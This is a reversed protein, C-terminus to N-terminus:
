LGRAGRRKWYVLPYTGAIPLVAQEYEAAFRPHAVLGRQSVFVPVKGDADLMGNGLLIVDPERALVISADFKTHGKMEAELHPATHAIAPDVLGLMDVIPLRSEFGVFGIAETAVVTGPAARERLAVGVARWRRELQDFSAECEDRQTQRLQITAIMGLAALTAPVHRPGRTFLHLMVALGLLPFAPVLLRSLPMHDGGVFVVGAAAVLFALAARLRLEEVDRKKLSLGVVLLVLPVLLSTSADLVYAGGRWLDEGFTLKKAHYTNPLWAGFYAVRFALWALPPALTAIAREWERRAALRAAAALALLLLEPRVLCACGLAVDAGRPARAGFSRRAEGLLWFAVCAAAPLTGLGANAHFAFAPAASALLAPWPLSARPLVTRWALALLAVVAAFSAYGLARSAAVHDLGAREVLAHFCVLPPATFGEVRQGPDYVLGLGRALNVGYRYLIADDDLPGCDRWAWAHALALACAGATALAFTRRNEPAVEDM